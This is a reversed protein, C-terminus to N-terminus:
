VAGGSMIRLADAIVPAYHARRTDSGKRRCTDQRIQKTM